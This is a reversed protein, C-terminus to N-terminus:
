QGSPTSREQVGVEIGLRGSQGVSYSISRLELGLLTISYGETLHLATAEISQRSTSPTDTVPQRVTAEKLEHLHVYIESPTTGSPLDTDTDPVSVLQAQPPLTSPRPEVVRKISGATGSWGLGLGQRQTKTTLRHRLRARLTTFWTDAQSKTM